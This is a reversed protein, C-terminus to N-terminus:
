AIKPWHFIQKIQGTYNGNEDKLHIIQHTPKWQKRGKTVKRNNRVFKKGFMIQRRQQRNLKFGNQDVPIMGKPLSSNTQKMDEVRRPAFFKFVKKFMSKISNYM